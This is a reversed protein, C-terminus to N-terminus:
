PWFFLTRGTDLASVQKMDDDSLSFDFVNFNEIMREKHTSKPIVVVGSQILFRLIIQAVSKNHKKAVEMLVLNKFMNNKGEAFPAWSQIQTDYKKLFARTQKQQWFVHTEVQNIAPIIECSNVIDDFDGSYFNSLGIARVKGERYADEMARYIGCNENFPQHIMLLDIYDSRLQKLSGEISRKTNNYGDTWVKTTIFLEDRLVGSKVIANGVSGENGYCQATDISRYGVSIADLVSRECERPSVQYVGYGLIPMKVGNNLTVYEMYIAGKEQIFASM